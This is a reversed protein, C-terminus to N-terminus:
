WRPKKQLEVQVAQTIRISRRAAPGRRKVGMVQAAPIMVAAHAGSRGGGGGGGGGRIGEGHTERGVWLAISPRTSWRRTRLNRSPAKQSNHVLPKQATGGTVHWTTSNFEQTKPWFHVEFSDCVKALFLHCACLTVCNHIFSHIPTLNFCTTTSFVWFLHFTMVIPCVSTNEDRTHDCRATTQASRSYRQVSSRFTQHDTATVQDPWTHPARSPVALDAAAAVGGAPWGRRRTVHGARWAANDRAALYRTPGASPSLAAGAAAAAHAARRLLLLLLSARRGPLRLELHYQSRDQHQKQLCFLDQCHLFPKASTLPHGLFHM